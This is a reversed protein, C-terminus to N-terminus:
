RFHPECNHAENFNLPSSKIGNILIDGWVNGTDANLKFFVVCVWIIAFVAVWTCINGWRHSM